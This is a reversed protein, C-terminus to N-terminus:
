KYWCELVGADNNLTRLAEVEDGGGWGKWRSSATSPGLSLHQSPRKPAAWRARSPHPPCLSAERSPKSQNHIGAIDKRM